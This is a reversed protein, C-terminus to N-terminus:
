ETQEAVDDGTVATGWRQRRNQYFGDRVAAYPDVSMDKMKQQARCPM